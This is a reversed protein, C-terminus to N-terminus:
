YLELQSIGKRTLLVKISPSVLQLADRDGTLVLVEMGQAEAKKAMTGILDDAEYNDLEFSAIRLAKLVDKILSFQPVLEPPTAKRHGKYEAYRETRFTERSKD